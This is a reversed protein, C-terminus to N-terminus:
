IKPIPNIELIEKTYARWGNDNDKLYSLRAASLAENKKSIQENIATKEDTTLESQRLTNIYATYEAFDNVFNKDHTEYLGGAIFLASCTLFCIGAMVFSGICKSAFLSLEQDVKQTLITNSRKIKEIKGMYIGALVFFIITTIGVVGSVVYQTM